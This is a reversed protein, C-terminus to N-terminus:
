GCACDPERSGAGGSGVSCIKDFVWFLHIGLVMPTLRYVKPSAMVGGLTQGVLDELNWTSRLYPLTNKGKGRNAFCLPLFELLVFQPIHTKLTHSQVPCVYNLAGWDNQFISM